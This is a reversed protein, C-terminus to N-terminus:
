YSLYNTSILILLTMAQDVGNVFAISFRTTREGQTGENTARRIEFEIEDRNENM